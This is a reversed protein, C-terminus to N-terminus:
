AAALRPAPAPVGVARAAHYFLFLGILIAGDRPFQRAIIAPDLTTAVGGLGLAWCLIAAKFAVFGAAYAIGLRVLGSKPMFRSIAADAGLLAAIAGMGLALAWAYTTLRHPYHLMGFGIIQSIGWALMMLKLGDGRRMYVAALAALAAFPTACALVFTTGTSAATFLIIWLASAGPRPATTTM